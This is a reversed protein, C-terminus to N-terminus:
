RVSGPDSRFMSIFPVLLWHGFKGFVLNVGDGDLSVAALAHTNRADAPANHKDAACQARLLTLDDNELHELGDGKCLHM